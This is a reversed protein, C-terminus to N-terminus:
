IEFDEYAGTDEIDPIKYKFLIKQLDQNLKTLSGKNIIIEDSLKKCANLNPLYEKDKGSPNHEFEDKQKFQEKSLGAGLEKMFTRTYRKDFPADIFFILANYKKKLYTIDAPHRIPCVLYREGEKIKKEAQKALIEHGKRKRLEVCIDLWNQRNTMDLKRKLGEKLIPRTHRISKFGRDILFYRIAGKGSTMTGTIGIVLTNARAMRLHNFILFCLSM